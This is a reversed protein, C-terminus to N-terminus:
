FDLDYPEVSGLLAPCSTGMELRVKGVRIWALEYGVGLRVTVLEYRSGVRVWVMKYV